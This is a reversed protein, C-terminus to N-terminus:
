FVAAREDLPCAVPQFRARRENAVRRAYPTVQLKM